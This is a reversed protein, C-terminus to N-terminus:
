FRYSIGANLFVDAADDNLGFGIAADFQLNLAQLWTVGGNLYNEPGDRGGYIGFYEIYSGLQATLPLSVGIANSLETDDDPEGLTVAGFWDVWAFYSWFAGITPDVEDSSFASSGIPVSLGAILSVPLRARDDTIQWKLAVSADNAGDIDTGGVEAWTYGSWGMQLELDEILGLRVIAQPLSHSEFDTGNDDSLFQYGAEIQLVGPDVTFPSSSFSPRETIIAQGEQAAAPLAALSLFPLALFTNRM